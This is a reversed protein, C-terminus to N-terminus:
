HDDCGGRFIFMIQMRRARLPIGVIKRFINRIFLKIYNLGYESWGESPYVIYKYEGLTTFYKEDYTRVHESCLPYEKYPVIIYLERCKSQLTRAIEVDESLHEFVNSAIIIDAVPVDKHSGSILSALHGYRTQCKQIASASVDVGLIKAAPFFNKYIPIADGLGCGFDVLSGSFEKTLRFHRVQAAAFNATQTCGGKEEWDGSSFRGEWYDKTNINRAMDEKLQEMIGEGYFSSGM